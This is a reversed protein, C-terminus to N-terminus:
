SSSTIRSHRSSNTFSHAPAQALYLRLEFLDHALLHGVERVRADPAQDGDRTDAHARVERVGRDEVADKLVGLLRVLAQLARRPSDLGRDSCLRAELPRGPEAEFRVRDHRLCGPYLVCQPLYSGIVVRVWFLVARSTASNRLVRSRTAMVVWTPASPSAM